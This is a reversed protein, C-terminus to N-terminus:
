QPLALAVPSLESLLEVAILVLVYVVEIYARMKKM